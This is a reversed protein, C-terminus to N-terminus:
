KPRRQGVIRSSSDTDRSLRDKTHKYTVDALTKGDAVLSINVPKGALREVAGLIDNLGNNSSQGGTSGADIMRMLNAQQSQTLVMEDRLLRVDIENHLPAQAFQSALGGTHLKPMQGRGIIGGTHYKAGVGEAARRAQSYNRAGYERIYVNKTVDKSLRNNLNDAVGIIDAIKSRVGELKSIKDNIEKKQQRYEETNRTASDKIGDMEAKQEYLNTLEDDLMKMEEGRKSNIGAQKLEIEIMRQKVEDLKGIQQQTKELEKSRKLVTDAVEAKQDRIKQLKLNEVGLNFTLQQAEAENKEKKAQKLDEEIGGIVSLQDAEQKDLDIIKQKEDKIESVIRKEDQLLGKMNAELKTKKAELELRIMELQQDNFEKAASTNELLINGQESLVTNSEPVAAVIDDNLKVLRDLEENSLGSREYLYEQEKGLRNITDPDATKTIESNIDVFRALEDSSLKSKAKLNDYETINGQLTVRNKEMENVGELTVKNFEDQSVKTAMIMGGLVSLAGIALGVPGTSIFMTRLALSLKGLTSVVLAISVATGGFALGTKVVSSDVSTLTRVMDSGEKVIETFIPLFEKGIKIGAEEAASQFEKFAGILNDNMTKAVKDATGASNSLEKSYDALKQEGDSILSLFGSAAETGTLQAVTATKQAQSMGDLKGAIHGVLEPLPKMAGNADTVKIGLEEMADKTQGTPNALSLLAARLAVGASEGQIGANSMSAIGSATDEFSIGLSKAVPGVYKMAGALQPLNTNATNMTKVMVDVAKGTEQSSIGFGTMVNSVLDSASALDIGGAAAANLVAPLAAIQDEVKFGAMALYTLANAAETASYQTSAGMERAVSELKALDDASANSIAGLKSMAAEFNAAVGVSAGIAGAIAAGMGLSATQIVSLDKGVQKASMGTQKMSQRSDAMKKKFDSNELILKAKIEGVSAM